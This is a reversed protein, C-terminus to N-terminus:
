CILSQFYVGFLWKSLYAGPPKISWKRYTMYLTNQKRNIINISVREIMSLLVFLKNQLM